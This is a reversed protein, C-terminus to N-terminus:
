HVSIFARSSGFIESVNGILGIITKNEIVRSSFFTSYKRIVLKIEIVFRTGLLYRILYICLSLYSSLSQFKIFQLNITITQNFSSLNYHIISLYSTRNINSSFYGLRVTVNNKNIKKEERKEQYVRITRYDFSCGRFCTEGTKGVLVRLIIPHFAINFHNPPTAFLSFALGWVRNIILEAPM